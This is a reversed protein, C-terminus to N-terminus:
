LGSFRRMMCPFLPSRPPRSVRWFFFPGNSITGRLRAQQGKRTETLRVIRDADPYPLPKLLVGYAVSFLTAAAGIGLAMTFVVAAYGPESRLLRLAYRIDAWM